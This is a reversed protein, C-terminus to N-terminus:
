SAGRRAVRKSSSRSRPSADLLVAIWRLDETNELMIKLIMTLPVSLLMGVPGWVWGWFVLSSFVVLTSLGLRRGMFYPELLNGLSVNVMIFVLAVALAHGPGLQLAAVVVPPVAALISGLNPIYNLLFALAGWLVAFDVGIIAMAVGVITGTTLSILTKFGLYRQVETKIKEFRESSERKGFAAELKAPFGAAEFLIFVITLLVLLLNSLVAAVRRLTGTVLDVAKAPNLLDTAIDPPVEIGRASMWALVDSSIETLRARYKPAAETFDKISGGIVMAVGVLVGLAALVTVLVALWKPVSRSVLWNLLPLTIMALFISVLLPLILAAAAKIGAVVVVVSAM